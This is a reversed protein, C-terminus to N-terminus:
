KVLWCSAAAVVASFITPPLLFWWGSGAALVHVSMQVWTQKGKTQAFYPNDDAIFESIFAM